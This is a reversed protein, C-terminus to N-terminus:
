RRGSFGDDRVVYTTIEREGVLFCVLKIWRFPVPISKLQDIALGLSLLSLGPPSIAIDVLLVLMDPSDFLGEGPELTADFSFLALRLASPVEGL